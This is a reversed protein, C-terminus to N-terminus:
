KAVWRGRLRCRRWAGAGPRQAAGVSHDPRQYREPQARVRQRQLQSCATSRPCSPSHPLHPAAYCPLVLSRERCRQSYDLLVSTRLNTHGVSSVWCEPALTWAGSRTSVRWRLTCTSRTAACIPVFLCTASCQMLALRAAWHGCAMALAPRPREDSCGLRVSPRGCVLHIRFSLTSSLSKTYEFSSAGVQGACRGLTLQAAPRRGETRGCLRQGERRQRCPCSLMCLPPPSRNEEQACSLSATSCSEASRGLLAAACTIAGVAQLCGPQPELALAATSLQSRRGM